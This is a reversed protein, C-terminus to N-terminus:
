HNLELAQNIKSLNTVKRDKNTLKGHSPTICGIFFYNSFEMNISNFVKKM